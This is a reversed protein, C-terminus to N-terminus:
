AGCYVSSVVARSHGLEEAIIKGKTATLTRAVGSTSSSSHEALKALDREGTTQGTGKSIRTATLKRRVPEAETRILRKVTEVLESRRIASM